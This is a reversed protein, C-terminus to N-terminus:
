PRTHPCTLVAPTVAPFGPAPLAPPQDCWALKAVLLCIHDSPGRLEGVCKKSLEIGEVELRRGLRDQATMSLVVRAASKTDNRLLIWGRVQKADKESWELRVAPAKTPRVIKVAPGPASGGGGTHANTAAGGVPSGAVSTVHGVPAAAGPAPVLQPLLGPAAAPALAGSLCSF